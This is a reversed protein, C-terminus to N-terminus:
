QSPRSRKLAFGPSEKAQFCGSSAHASCCCGSSIVPMFGLGVGSSFGPRTHSSFSPGGDTAWARLGSVLRGAARTRRSPLTSRPSFTKRHINGSPTSVGVQTTAHGTPAYEQGLSQRRSPAASCRAPSDRGDRLPFRSKGLYNRIWDSDRRPRAAAFRRSAQAFVALGFSKRVLCPTVNDRRSRAISSRSALRIRHRLCFFSSVGRHDRCCLRVSGVV